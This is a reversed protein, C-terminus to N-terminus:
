FQILQYEFISSKQLTFTNMVVGDRMVTVEVPEVLARTDYKLVTRMGPAHIGFFMGPVAQARDYPANAIEDDMGKGIFNDQADLSSNYTRNIRRYIEAFPIMANGKFTLRVEKPHEAEQKWTSACGALLMSVALGALFLPGLRRGNHHNMM